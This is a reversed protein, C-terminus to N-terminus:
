ETLTTWSSAASCDATGPARRGDPSVLTPPRGRLPLAKRGRYAQGYLWVPPDCGFHRPDSRGLLDVMRGLTGLDTCSRFQSRSEHQHGLHASGTAGHSCLSISDRVAYLPATPSVRSVRM